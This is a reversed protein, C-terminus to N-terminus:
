PTHRGNHKNEVVKGRVVALDIGRGLVTKSVPIYHVPVLVHNVEDEPVSGHIVTRCIIVCDLLELSDRLLSELLLSDRLAVRSM